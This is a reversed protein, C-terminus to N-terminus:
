REREEGEVGVGCRWVELQLPTPPPSIGENVIQKDEQDAGEALRLLFRYCERLREQVEEGDYAPTDTAPAV